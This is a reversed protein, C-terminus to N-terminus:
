IRGQLYGELVPAGLIALRSSEQEASVLRHHKHLAVESIVTFAEQLTQLVKKVGLPVVM